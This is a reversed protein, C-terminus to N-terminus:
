RARASGRSRRAGSSAAVARRPWGQSGKEAKSLNACSSSAWRRPWSASSCGRPPGRRATLCPASCGVRLVRRSVRSRRRLLKM